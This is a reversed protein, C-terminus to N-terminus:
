SQSRLHLHHRCKSQELLIARITISSSSKTEKIDISYAKWGLQGVEPSLIGIRRVTIMILLFLKQDQLQLSRKYLAAKRRLISYTGNLQHNRPKNNHLNLTQKMLLSPM